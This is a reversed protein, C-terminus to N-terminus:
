PSPEKYPTKAIPRRNELETVAIKLRQRCIAAINIKHKRARYIDGSPFRIPLVYDYQLLTNRKKRM